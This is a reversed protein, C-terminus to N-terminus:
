IFLDMSSLDMRLIQVLSTTGIVGSVPLVPRTIMCWITHQLPIIIQLLLRLRRLLRRGLWPLRLLPVVPVLLRKKGLWLLRLLPVPLRRRGWCSRFLFLCFCCSLPKAVWKDCVVQALSRYFLSRFSHPHLCCLSRFLLYYLSPQQTAACVLQAWWGRTWFYFRCRLKQFAMAGM